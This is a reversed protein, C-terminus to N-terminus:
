GVLGGDWDSAQRGCLIVDFPPLKRAAAALIAATAAADTEGYPGEDVLVAADAGMHLARKLVELAGPPGLTLATVTGGHADRLALAAELAHNDFLGIVAKVERAAVVRPPTGEVTFLEAPAEYDPVQRICAIAHMAFGLHGIVLSGIVLPPRAPRM